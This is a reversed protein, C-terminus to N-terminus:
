WPAASPSAQGTERWVSEPLPQPLHVLENLDARPVDAPGEHALDERAGAVLDDEDVNVLLDEVRQVLPAAVGDLDVVSGPVDPDLVHAGDIAAVGVGDGLLEGGALERCRRRTRRAARCRGSDRRRDTAADRARGPGRSTMMQSFMRSAASAHEGAHRLVQRGRERQSLHEAHDLRADALHDRDHALLLARAVRQQDVRLRVVREDAVRGGEAVRHGVHGPELGPPVHLGVHVALQEDVVEAM